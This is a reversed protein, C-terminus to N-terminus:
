DQPRFPTQPPFSKHFLYNCGPRHLLTPMRGRVSLCVSVCVCVCLCPHGCYMERRRRSVRFTIFFTFQQFDLPCLEHGLAGYSAVDITGDSISTIKRRREFRDAHICHQRGSRRAVSAIILQLRTYCVHNLAYHLCARRKTRLLMSTDFIARGNVSQRRPDRTKLRHYSSTNQAVTRQTPRRVM